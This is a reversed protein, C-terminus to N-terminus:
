PNSTATRTTPSTTEQLRYQHIHGRGLRIARKTAISVLWIELEPDGDVRKDFMVYGCGDSFSASRIPGPDDSRQERGVLEVIQQSRHDDQVALGAYLWALEKGGCKMAQHLSHAPAEICEIDSNARNMAKPLQGERLTFTVLHGIACAQFSQANERFDLQSTERSVKGWSERAFICSPIMCLAAILARMNMPALLTPRPLRVTPSAHYVRFRALPAPAGRAPSRPRLRRSPSGIRHPPGTPTTTSPMTPTPRARPM